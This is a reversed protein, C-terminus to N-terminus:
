FRGMNIKKNGYYDAIQQMFATKRPRSIQLRDGNDLVAEDGDIMLIHRLNVVCSKNCLAFNGDDLTEMVDKITGRTSVARTETHFTLIHNFIEVYIIEDTYVRVTKENTKILLKKRNETAIKKAARQMKASFTNYQVPKVIFDFADVEYGNLAFRALATVFILAVHSDMERLSRATNMGSIMPMDIDMFVIDYDGRYQQLFLIGNQFHKTEIEVSNERGYKKLCSILTEADRPNDEVIAIHLM